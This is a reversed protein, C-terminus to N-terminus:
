PLERQSHHKSLRQNRHKTIPPTVPPKRHREEWGMPPGRYGGGYGGLYQAMAPGSLAILVAALIIRKM